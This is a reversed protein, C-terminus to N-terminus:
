FLYFQDAVLPAAFRAARLRNSEAMQLNFDREKLYGARTRDTRARAAKRDWRRATAGFDYANYRCQEYTMGDIRQEESMM